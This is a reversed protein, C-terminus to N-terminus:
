LETIPDNPLQSLIHGSARLGADNLEALAVTVSEGPVNGCSTYTAPDGTKHLNIAFGGTRLSALTADVTTVSAGAAMNTLGFEVGGLDSCSGLHIHNAESLGATASLVVETQSGRATMTAWGTQGEDNLEALPFSVSDALHPINGCSTYVAPNGSEHSNIAFGGTMLSALAATVMTVSSGSGNEFSTLEHVVGGLTDGCQGSHIHVLETALDGDPLSLEVRTHDGQPSLKAWGAQGSANQENLSILVPGQASIVWWVGGVTQGNADGPSIDNDFYYLPLGDYTVQISGDARSITGLLSSAVGSGAAPAEVTLLPPWTLACGGTCNSVGPTDPTFLYLSRGAPDVLISGMAANDGVNVSATTRVPGGDTSVVYWVNGVDQGNTDGPAVDKDFYYLPYGNYTVQKSGDDKTITGLRDQSIGEGAVPADITLLPPWVLACRGACNAQNLDDRAFLYLTRGTPDVLMPGLGAANSSNVGAETRIPGGDTSVVFWVGGVDQGNADGAQGDNAFYYLPYGNYTVQTSGDGRTITGLRTQTVGDGAVPDGETTLPPWTAACGGACNSTQLEDNTFLYLTMGDGDVLHVGLDGAQSAAVAAAGPSPPPVPTPAPTAAPVRTAAPAQTAAPARTPSPPATTPAPPVATATAAPPPSTSAPRATATPDDGGCAAILFPGVISFLLLLLGTRGRRSMSSLKAFMGFPM